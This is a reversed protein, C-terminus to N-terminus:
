QISSKLVFSNEMSSLFINENMNGEHSYSHQYQRLFNFLFRIVSEAPSTQTQKGGLTRSTDDGTCEKHIRTMEDEQEICTELSWRWDLHLSSCHVSDVAMM